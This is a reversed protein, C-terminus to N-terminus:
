EQIEDDFEDVMDVGEKWPLLAQVRSTQKLKRLAKIEIQRVRENTLHLKQGIEGLTKIRGDDLGFRMLVTEKEKPDLSDLAQKIHDRLSVLSLRMFPDESHTDEIYEGITTGDDSGVEMDLSIPDVACELATEVKEVTSGVGDAIDEVTPQAGHKLTWERSFREIKGVLDFTNAPIHITKSKEHIARTIAQRVWWIAYTSFKYGKRYDFNEVATILGKNGEQILDSIEMGRHIYRKAISVVLRVNAEIISCKAQNRMEEWSDFHELAESSSSTALLQKYQELLERLRRSNLRLQQCLEIVHEQQEAIVEALSEDEHKKLAKKRLSDLQQQEKRITEAAEIFQKRLLEVEKPDKIRDEEIRLVDVCEISGAALENAITTITDLIAHERFAMDLLKFQAFRMLIAYQVEQGRSMLPVRGLSNLYIWTPDSFHGKGNSSTRHSRQQNKDANVPTASVSTQSPEKM